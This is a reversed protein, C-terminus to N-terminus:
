DTSLTPSDRPRDGLGLGAIGPLGLPADANVIYNGVPSKAGQRHQKGRSERASGKKKGGEM